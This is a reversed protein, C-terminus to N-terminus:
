GMAKEESLLAIPDVRRGIGGVVLTAPWASDKRKRGETSSAPPFRIEPCFRLVKGGVGVTHHLDSLGM